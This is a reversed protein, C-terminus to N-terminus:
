CLSQPLRALLSGSCVAHSRCSLPIERQPRGRPVLQETGQHQRLSSSSGFNLPGYSPPFNTLLKTLGLGHTVTLVQDGVESSYSRSYTVERSQPKAKEKEFHLCYRIEVECCSSSWLFTKAPFGPDRNGWPRSPRGTTCPDRDVNAAVRFVKVSLAPLPWSCQQKYLAESAAVHPRPQEWVRRAQTGKVEGIVVNGTCAQYIQEGGCLFHILFTSLFPFEGKQQKKMRRALSFFCKKDALVKKLQM